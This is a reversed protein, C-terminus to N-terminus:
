TKHPRDMDMDGIRNHEVAIDGVMINSKACQAKIQMEMQEVNKQCRMSSIFLAGKFSQIIISKM